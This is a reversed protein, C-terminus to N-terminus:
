GLTIYIHWLLIIKKLNMACDTTRAGSKQSESRTLSRSFESIFSCMCRRVLSRVTYMVPVLLALPTISKFQITCAVPFERIKRSYAFLQLQKSSFYATVVTRRQKVSARNIMTPFATDTSLIYINQEAMCSQTNKLYNAAAAKQKVSTRVLAFVSTELCFYFHM